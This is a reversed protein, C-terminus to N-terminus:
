NIGLLAKALRVKSRPVVASALTSENM